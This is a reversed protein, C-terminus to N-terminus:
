LENLEEIELGYDYQLDEDLKSVIKEILELQRNYTNVLISNGEYSPSMTKLKLCFYLLVEVETEKKPSYRIYKKAVRLIKRVSKKVLYYTQKNINDFQNDIERKVSEVYSHEDSAEYILYTVLEKNEKKFKTLRLCLELLEEQSSNKMERKLEHVSAAKM